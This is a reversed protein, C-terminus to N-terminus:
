KRFWGVVTNAVASGFTFGVGAVFWWVLLSLWESLPYPM